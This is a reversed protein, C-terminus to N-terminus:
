PRNSRWALKQLEFKVNLYVPGISLTQLSSRLTLTAMVYSNPYYPGVMSDTHIIKDTALFAHEIVFIISYNIQTYTTKLSCCIDNIGFKRNFM